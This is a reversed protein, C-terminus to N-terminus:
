IRVNRLIETLKREDDKRNAEIGARESGRRREDQQLRANMESILRQIQNM